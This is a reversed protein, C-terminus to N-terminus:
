RFKKRGPGLPIKPKPKTRKKAAHAAQEHQTAARIKADRGRISVGAMGDLVQQLYRAPVDVFTFHDYIDIAGIVNGPVDAENAIAGVIDTPRVGSNQGASIVLRVM